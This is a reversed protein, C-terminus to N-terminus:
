EGIYHDDIEGDVQNEFDGINIDKMSISSDLIKFVLNASGDGDVVVGIKRNAGLYGLTEIKKCLELFETIEEDGGVIELKLKYRSM